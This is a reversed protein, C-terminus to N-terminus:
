LYIPSFHAFDDRGSLYNFWRLFNFAAIKASLRTLLGWFTRAKPFSLGLCATLLSNVQEIVQRLSHLQHDLAAENGLDDFADQTLLSAQYDLRWHLQWYQGAFGLDGLYLPATAQGVGTAPAIPGTPGRRSGRSPRWKPLVAELDAVAPPPADPLARWRLLAEALWREETNAPAFVFGTIVGLNNVVTLLKVGYYYDRDSGGVGVAAENAFCRHRDGRCRRMLPVPVGDLTEYVLGGLEQSLTLAIAPGLASLVGAMDRMRRNLQSQSLMRPFYDRWKPLVERLFARESRNQQWQMLIALTLVEDDSLEVGKGRRVPKLAAFHAQYLDSVICYLTTLFTNLDIAM